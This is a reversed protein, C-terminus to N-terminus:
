LGPSNAQLRALMDLLTRQEEASLCSMWRRETDHFRPLVTEVRSVGEETIEVLLMRRDRSHPVRRILGHRQLSDLVSTMTGRTVIMRDAIVSPPLPGEAGRLVTLVNFATASPIGVERAMTQGYALMRTVLLGMNLVCETALTSSGPWQQEFDAELRVVPEVNSSM